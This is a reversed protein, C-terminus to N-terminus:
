FACMIALVPMLRIDLKWCLAREAKHDLVRATDEHEKWEPRPADSEVKNAEEYAVADKSVDDSPAVPNSPVDQKDEAM